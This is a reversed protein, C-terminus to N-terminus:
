VREEKLGHLTCSRLVNAPLTRRHPARPAYKLDSTFPCLSVAVLNSLLNVLIWSLLNLLEIPTYAHFTSSIAATVFIQPIDRNLTTHFTMAIFFLLCSDLASRVSHIFMLLLRQITKDSPRIGFLSKKLM